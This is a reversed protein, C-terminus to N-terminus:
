ARERDTRRPPKTGLPAINRWSAAIGAVTNRTNRPGPGRRRGAAGPAPRGAQREGRSGCRRVRNRAPAGRGRREMAPPVLVPADRRVADAAAPRAGPSGRGGGAEDAERGLREAEQAGDGAMLLAGPEGRVARDALPRAGGEGRRDSRAASSARRRSGSVPSGARASSWRRRQAVAAEDEDEAAAPRGSLAEDRRTARAASTRGGRRQPQVAGAAVRGPRQGGPGRTARAGGRGGHFM